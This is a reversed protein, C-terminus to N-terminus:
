PERLSDQAYYCLEYNDWLELLADIELCEDPDCLLEHLPIFVRLRLRRSGAPSRLHLMGIDLTFSVQNSLPPYTSGTYLVQTNPMRICNHRLCDSMRFVRLTTEKHNDHRTKRIEDWFLQLCCLKGSKFLSDIRASELELDSLRLTDLRPMKDVLTGETFETWGRCDYRGTKVIKTQIGALVLLRLPPSTPSGLAMRGKFSASLIYGLGEFMYAIEDLERLHMMESAVDVPEYFTVIEPLCLAQGEHFSPHPLASRSTSRDVSIIRLRAAQDWDLPLVLENSQISCM